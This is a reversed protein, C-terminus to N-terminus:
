ELTIASKINALTDYVFGASDNTAIFLHLRREGVMTVLNKDFDDNSWGILVKFGGIERVKVKTFDGMLVYGQTIAPTEVVRVGSITKGDATAFPPIIYHGDTSKELEMNVMDTPNVFVFNPEFFLNRIQTLGALIADKNNPTATKITTTAYLSAWYTVGYISDSTGDGAIVSNDVVMDVKYKLENRIDGAIGEVDDLMETSVKIRDAVKKVTSTVTVYEYDILPKLAGEATWAANGDPNTKEVWVIMRSNSQAYNMYQLMTPRQRVLDVIGPEMSVAPFYTGAGINTSELMTGASKTEPALEIEMWPAGPTKMKEWLGKNAEKHAKIQEAITPTKKGGSKESMSKMEIGMANIAAIQDDLKKQLKALDENDKLNPAFKALAENINKLMVDESVKGKVHKEIESAISAQIVNYLAEEKGELTIGNITTAMTKQTKLNTLTKQAHNQL